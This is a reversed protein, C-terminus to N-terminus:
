IGKMRASGMVEGCGCECGLDVQWVRSETWHACRSSKAEKKRRLDGELWGNLEWLVIGHEHNRSLSGGKEVEVRM